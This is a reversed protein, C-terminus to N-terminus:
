KEQSERDDNERENRVVDWYNANIAEGLGPPLVSRIFQLLADTADDASGGDRMLEALLELLRQAEAHNPPSLSVVYGPPVLARSVAEIGGARYILGLTYSDAPHVRDFPNPPENSPM